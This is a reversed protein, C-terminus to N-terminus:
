VPEVVLAHCSSGSSGVFIQMCVLCHSFSFHSFNNGRGRAPHGGEIKLFFYAQVINGFCEASHNGFCGM